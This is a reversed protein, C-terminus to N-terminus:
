GGSTPADDLVDWDVDGRSASRLGVRGGTFYVTFVWGQHTTISQGHTGTIDEDIATSHFTVEGTRAGNWVQVPTDHEAPATFIGTALPRLAGYKLAHDTPPPPTTPGGGNGGGGGGGGGCGAALTLSLLALLVLIPRM